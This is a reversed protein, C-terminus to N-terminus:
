ANRLAVRAATRDKLIADVILEIVQDVTVREDLNLKVGMFSLTTTVVDGAVEIAEDRSMNGDAVTQAAAVVADFVAEYKDGMVDRLWGGITDLVSLILSVVKPKRTAYENLAWVLAGAGIISPVLVQWHAALALLTELM